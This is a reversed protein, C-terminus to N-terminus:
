SMLDNNCPEHQERTEDGHDFPTSQPIQDQDTKFFEEIELDVFSVFIMGSNRRPVRNVLGSIELGGVFTQVMTPSPDKM